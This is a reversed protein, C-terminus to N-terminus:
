LTNEVWEWLWEFWGGRAHGESITAVTVFEL